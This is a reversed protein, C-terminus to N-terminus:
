NADFREIKYVIYNPRQRTNQLTLWLYQGVVGLGISTLAGFFMVSLVIATYGPVQIRGTIRAFLVTLIGLLALM